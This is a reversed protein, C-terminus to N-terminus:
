GGSDKLQYGSIDAGDQSFLLWISNEGGIEIELIGEHFTGSAAGGDALSLSFVEESCEWSTVEESDGYAVLQGTGDEELTLTSTMDVVEPLYDAGRYRVGFLEYTGAVTWERVPEAEESAPAEEPTTEEPSEVEELTTEENNEEQPEAVEEASEVVTNEPVPEPTPETTKGCASFAFALILVLFFAFGRKRM